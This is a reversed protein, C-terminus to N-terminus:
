RKSNSKRRATVLDFVHFRHGTTRVAVVDRALWVSRVGADLTIGAVRRMSPEEWGTVAGYRSGTALLPRGDAEGLAVTV